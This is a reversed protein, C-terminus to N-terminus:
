VISPVSGSAGSSCVGFYLYALKIQLNIECGEEGKRAKCVANYPVFVKLHHHLNVTYYCVGPDEM